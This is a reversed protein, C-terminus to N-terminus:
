GTEKYPEPLTAPLQRETSPLWRFPSACFLLFTPCWGRGPRGSGTRPHGALALQCCMGGDPPLPRGREPSRSCSGIQTGQTDLSAAPTACGPQPGLPASLLSHGRAGVGM